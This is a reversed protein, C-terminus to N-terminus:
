LKLVQNFLYKNLIYLIYMIKYAVYYAYLDITSETIIIILRIKENINLSM